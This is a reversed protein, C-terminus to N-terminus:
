KSGSVSLRSHRENIQSNRSKFESINNKNKLSLNASKRGEFENDDDDQHRRADAQENFDNSSYNEEGVKVQGVKGTGMNSPMQNKM